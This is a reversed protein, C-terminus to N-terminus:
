VEINYKKRKRTLRFLSSLNIMLKGLEKDSVRRIQRNVIHRKALTKRLNKGNWIFAKAVAKGYSLKKGLFFRIAIYVYVLLLTPLYKTLSKKEYNKILLAIHNKAFNYLNFAVSTEKKIIGSRYHYVESKPIFIVRYGRLWVRWCLDVDDRALFTDPDFLGVENLVEKKIILAAGKAYFIEYIHDYEKTEATLTGIPHPFGLVDISIGGSDLIRPGRETKLLLKCQAAGIKKENRMAKIAEKLWRCDVETDINLFVIYSGRSNAVGFNNGKAFGYNERLSIIKIRHDYRFNEKLFEM